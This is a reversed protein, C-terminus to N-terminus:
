ARELWVLLTDKRLNEYSFRGVLGCLSMRCTEELGIDSGLVLRRLVKNSKWQKRYKRTHLNKDVAKKQFGSFGEKNGEYSQNGGSTQFHVEPGSDSLSPLSDTHTPQCEVGGGHPSVRPFQAPHVVEKQLTSYNNTDQKWINDISTFLGAEQWIREDEEGM